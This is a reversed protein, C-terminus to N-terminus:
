EFVIVKKEKPSTQNYSKGDFGNYSTYYGEVKIYIDHKKFYYVLYCESGEYTDYNVDSKIFDIEGFTNKLLNYFIGTDGFKHSYAGELADEDMLKFLDDADINLEKLKNEIEDYSMVPIENKQEFDVIKDLFVNILNKVSAKSDKSFEMNPRNAVVTCMTLARHNMLKSLGYLASTEMEFNSVKSGEHEISSLYNILDPTSNKLRLTRGQPAYFGPATTTIGTYIDETAFFKLLAEDAGVIYHGKDGFPKYFNESNDYFSLLNDLGLGHTSAIISDVPIDERITGCTGLRIFTLQTFDEKIERRELDINFIADLENVVIDINDTGIGTSVVSLHKGKYYGTHIVFERHKSKHTIVDFKKSIMPVRDQDGVLIITKAVNEKNVDIHYIKEDKIILDTEPIM